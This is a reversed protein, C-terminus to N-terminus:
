FYPIQGKSSALSGKVITLNASGTINRVLIASSTINAVSPGFVSYSAEYVQPLNAQLTTTHFADALVEYYGVNSYEIGVAIQVVTNATNSVMSLGYGM